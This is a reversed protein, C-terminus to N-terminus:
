PKFYPCDKLQQWLFALCRRIWHTWLHTRGASPSLHRREVSSRHSLDRFLTSLSNKWFPWLFIQRCDCMNKWFRMVKEWSTSDTKEGKSGPCDILARVWLTCCFHHQSNYSVADIQSERWTVNVLPVWGEYRSSAWAVHPVMYFHEPRCGWSIDRGAALVRSQSLRQLVVVGPELQSQLLSWVNYLLSSGNRSHGTLIGSECFRHAYYITTKHM